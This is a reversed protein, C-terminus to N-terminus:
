SFDLENLLAFEETEDGTGSDTPGAGDDIDVANFLCFNPETEDTVSWILSSELGVTVLGLRTAGAAGAGVAATIRGVPAPGRRTGIVSPGPLIAFVVSVEAVWRAGGAMPPTPGFLTGTIIAVFVLAVAGACTLAGIAPTSFCGVLYPPPDADANGLGTTDPVELNGAEDLELLILVAPATSTFPFAPPFPKPTRRIINPPFCHNLQNSARVASKKLSVDMANYWYMCVCSSIFWKSVFQKYQHLYYPTVSEV